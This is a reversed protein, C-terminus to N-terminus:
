RYVARVYGDSDVGDVVLQARKVITRLEDFRSWDFSMEYAEAFGPHRDAILLRAASPLATYAGWREKTRDDPEVGLPDGHFWLAHQAQKVSPVTSVERVPTRTFLNTIFM